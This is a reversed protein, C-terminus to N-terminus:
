VKNQKIEKALEKMEAAAKLTQETIEAGGLLRGLEAVCEEDGIPAAFTRTREADTKKEILIHTDAMAAIQPLHTVCILQKQRSLAAMKEAVKQAARGSVGTDIEDFIYTEVGGSAAYASKVALMVRSMEGGSAIKALPKPAEGKNASLLIEIEDAGNRAPETPSLVIEFVAGEMNLDALADAVLQEMKRAYEARISTIEACRNLVTERKQEYEKQLKGLEFASNNLLDMESRMKELNEVALAVTGGYKRKIIYLQNLREEIEDLIKPNTDINGYYRRLESSIDNIEYLADSLRSAQTELRKDHGAAAELETLAKNLADSANDDGDYLASLAGGVSTILKEAAAAAKKDELLAEEEGVKLKAEELENVRYELYELRSEKDQAKKEIEAIWGRIEVYDEYEREVEAKKAALVAGCFGDLFDLQRLPNLLSQHEHQGHVDILEATVRKLMSATVSRGNIKASTKGSDNIVRSIILLGDGDLEIEDGIGSLARTDGVRFVTEVRGEKEGARVIDRSTKEGLTFSLSDIVMSKGAGTEGTLVNLGEGFEIEAEDILGINKISISELM